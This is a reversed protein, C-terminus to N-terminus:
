PAVEDTRHEFRRVTLGWREAVQWERQLEPASVDKGCLWFEDSRRILAEAVEHWEPRPEGAATDGLVPWTAVPAAGVAAAWALWRQAEWLNRARENGGGLRCAVYVLRRPQETLLKM